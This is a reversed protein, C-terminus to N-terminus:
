RAAALNNNSCPPTKNINRIRRNKHQKQHVL